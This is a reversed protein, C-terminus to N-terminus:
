PRSATPTMGTALALTVRASTGRGYFGEVTVTGRHRDVIERVLALGLGSGGLAGHRFREFIHPRVAPDVGPGQDRVEVVALTGERRAGLEVGASNPTHRFANDVLNILVRKLLPESGRVILDPSAQWRFPRPVM